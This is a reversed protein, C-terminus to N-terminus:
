DLIAGVFLRFDISPALLHHLLQLWVSKNQTKFIIDCKMDSLLHGLM